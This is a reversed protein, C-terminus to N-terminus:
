LSAFSAIGTFAGSGQPFSTLIQMNTPLLWAPSLTDQLDLLLKKIYTFVANCHNEFFYDVTSLYQYKVSLKDGHLLAFISQYTYSVLQHHHTNRYGNGWM